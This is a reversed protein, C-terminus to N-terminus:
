FDEERSEIFFSYNNLFAEISLCFCGLRTRSCSYIIWLLDVSLLSTFNSIHLFQMVFLWYRYQKMDTKATFYGEDIKLTVHIVHFYEINYIFLNTRVDICFHKLSKNLASVLDNCGLLYAFLGDCLLKLINMVVFHFHQM